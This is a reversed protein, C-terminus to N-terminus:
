GSVFRWTALKDRKTLFRGRKHIFHGMKEILHTTQGCPISEYPIKRARRKNRLFFPLYLYGM